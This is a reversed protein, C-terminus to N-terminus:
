SLSVVTRLRVDFCAIELIFCFVFHATCLSLSLLTCYSAAPRTATCASSKESFSVTIKTKTLKFIKLSYTYVPQPIKHPPNRLRSYVSIKLGQFDAIYGTCLVRVYANYMSSRRDLRDEIAPPSRTTSTPVAPALAESPHMLPALSFPLHCTRNAQHTSSIM